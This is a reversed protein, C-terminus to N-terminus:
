IYFILYKYNDLKFVRSILSNKTKNFLITIFIEIVKIIIIFGKLYKEINQKKVLEIILFNIFYNM